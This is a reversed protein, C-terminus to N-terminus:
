QKAQSSDPDTKGDQQKRGITIGGSLFGFNWNGKATGNTEFELKVGGSDVDTDYSGTLVSIGKDIDNLTLMGNRYDYHIIFQTPNAFYAKEIPFTGVNEITFTFSEPASALATLGAKLPSSLEAQFPMGETNTDTVRIHGTLVVLYSGDTQYGIDLIDYGPELVAEAQSEIIDSQVIFDKATTVSQIKGGAREIAERKAFLVAEKYDQQVTSKIGDDLGKIKVPISPSSAMSLFPLLILGVLGKKM